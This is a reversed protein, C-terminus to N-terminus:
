EQERRQERELSIFFVTGLFSNSAIRRHESVARM